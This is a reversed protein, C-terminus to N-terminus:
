QSSNAERFIAIPQHFEEVLDSKGFHRAILKLKKLRTEQLEITRQYRSNTKTAAKLLNITGNAHRDILASRFRADTGKGFARVIKSADQHWSKAILHDRNHDIWSQNRKTDLIAQDPTGRYIQDFDLRSFNEFNFHHLFVHRAIGLRFGERVLRACFDDTGLHGLFQEDFLGIRQIVDIRMLICFSNLAETHRIGFPTAKNWTTAFDNVTRWDAENLDISYDVPVIQENGVSNSVPGVIPEETDILKDLWDHTVLVDSDLLCIHTFDDSLAAKIGFNNGKSVGNSNAIDIYRIKMGDTQHKDVLAKVATKVEQRSGNEVLYICHYINTRARMLSNLTLALLKPANFSTIVIAVRAPNLCIPKLFPIHRGEEQVALEFM